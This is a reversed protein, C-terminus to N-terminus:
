AQIRVEEIFLIRKTLKNDRSLPINEIYILVEEIPIDDESGLKLKMLMADILVQYM